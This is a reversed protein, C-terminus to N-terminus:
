TVFFPQSSLPQRGKWVSSITTVHNLDEYDSMPQITPIYSCAEKM